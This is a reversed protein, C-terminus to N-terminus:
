RRTLGHYEFYWQVFLPVGRDIPTAPEFGLKERARVIDAFTAPVDGPQMPLLDQRAKIGLEQELLAIVRSLDEARHNG